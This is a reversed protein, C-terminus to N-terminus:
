ENTDVYGCIQRRTKYKCFAGIIGAVRVGYKLYWPHDDQPSPQNEQGPRVMLSVFKDSLSQLYELVKNLTRVRPDVM